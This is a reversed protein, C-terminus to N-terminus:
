QYASVLYHTKSSIKTLVIDFEAGSTTTLADGTNSGESFGSSFTIIGASGNNVIHVICNGLHATSLALTFAGGNTALQLPGSGCDITTTGSSITGLAVATPAFGGTLVQGTGSLTVLTTPNLTYQTFTLPDTGVTAVSSTLAWSTQANITGNVVPITGTNNMDSPQDYDLVRTLIVPLLTTQVQTVSYIGNHSGSPSVTDNKILVRQGIATFTFGDPAFPTNAVGTLTAGIGSAGNIYTYSSTNAATTTAAQVAIAPNLGAAVSDVYAKTAADTPNVPAIVTTTGSVTLSGAVTLVSTSPTGIGTATLVNFFNFFHSAGPSAADVSSAGTGFLAFDTGSTANTTGVSANGGGVMEIFNSATTLATGTNTGVCLGNTFSVTGSAAGRCAAHGIATNWPFGVAANWNAMASIGVSTTGFLYNNATTGVQNYTILNNAGIAIVDNEGCGNRLADTDIAVVLNLVIPSACGVGGASNHGFIASAFGGAVTAGSHVGFVSFETGSFSAWAAPSSYIVNGGNTTSNVSINGPAALPTWSLTFTAGSGTGSTSLQAVPNAPVTLCSGPNTVNFAGSALPASASQNANLTLVVHTACGDNLTITDGFNYGTGGAAPTPNSAAAVGFVPAWANLLGTQYSPATQGLTWTNATSLLPVTAGSTGIANFAATGFSGGAVSLLGPAGTVGSALTTGSLTGAPAIVVNGSAATIQGQANVTFSPISTSSGYSAATVATNALDASTVLGTATFSGTITPGTLTPSTLTKNTLTQTGTLSVGDTIGYGALTTAPAAYDTGAVASVLGNSVSKIMGSVGSTLLTIVPTTTPTAVTGTLGNATAVAVSEVTAASTGCTPCSVNSGTVVIPASGTITASGGGPGTLGDAWVPVSFLLGIFLAIWRM